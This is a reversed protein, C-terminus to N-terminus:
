DIGVDHWPLQFEIAMAVPAWSDVMTVMAVMVIVMAVM